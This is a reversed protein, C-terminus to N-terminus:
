RDKRAGVLVAPKAKKPRSPTEGSPTQLAKDLKRTRFSISEDRTAMALHVDIRGGNLDLIQTTCIPGVDISRLEVRTQFIECARGIGHVQGATHAGAVQDGDPPGGQSDIEDIARM